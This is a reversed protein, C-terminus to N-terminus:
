ILRPALYLTAYVALGAAVVFYWFLAATEVGVRRRPTFHGRWALVAVVVAQLLAALVHAAHAGDITWVLSGYANTSWLYPRAVFEVAKLILFLAALACALPLGLRLARGDGRRLGRDAWLVPGASALLVAGSLAPLLLGPPALGAPPWTEAQTVRLYFYSSILAAFITSDVALFVLMGWWLPAQTGSVEVPLAEAPPATTASM